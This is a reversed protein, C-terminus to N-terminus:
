AASAHRQPLKSLPRQRHQWQSMRRLNSTQWDAGLHRRTSSPHPRIKIRRRMNAPAKGHDENLRVKLNISKWLPSVVLNSANAWRVVVKGCRPCKTGVPYGYDSDGACASCRNWEMEPTSWPYRTTILATSLHQALSIRQASTWRAKKRHLLKARCPQSVYHLRRVVESSAGSPCLM